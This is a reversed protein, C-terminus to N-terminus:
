KLKKFATTNYGNLHSIINQLSDSIGESVIKNGMPTLHSDKIYYLAGENTHKILYQTVDIYKIKYKNLVDILLLNPLDPMINKENLGYYAIMHKRMNNYVQYKHPIIIFIPQYSKKSLLNIEKDLYKRAEDIYNANEKNTILFFPDIDSYNNGKNKINLIKQKLFQIFYLRNLIKNNNIFNNLTWILDKNPSISINTKFDKASKAISVSDKLNEKIIDDFDNGTYFGHIVIKPNGIESIRSEIIKNQIHLGTGAVGLNLFNYSLKNKTFAVLTESGEVGVGMIFSDGIFPIINITDAKENNSTSRGGLNNIHITNEYEFHYIKFTSNPKFSYFIGNKKKFDWYTDTGYGKFKGSDLMNMKYQLWNPAFLRLISEFLIVIVLLHIINIFALTVKPYKKYFSDTRM